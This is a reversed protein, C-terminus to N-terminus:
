DEVLLWDEPLDHWVPLDFFSFTKKQKKRDLPRTKKHLIQNNFPNIMLGWIQPYIYVQKIQGPNRSRGCFTRLSHGLIEQEPHPTKPSDNAKESGRQRSNPCLHTKALHMCVNPVNSFSQGLFRNFFFLLSQVHIESEVRKNMHWMSFITSLETGAFKSQLYM